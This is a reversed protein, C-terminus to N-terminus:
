NFIAEYQTGEKDRGVPVLFLEYREGGRSLPYIAQPLIPDVPGLFLLRFSGSERISRPLEQAQKLLLSIDTEALDLAFPEGLAPAFDDLILDRTVAEQGETSGSARTSM